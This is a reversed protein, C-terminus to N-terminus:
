IIPMAVTINTLNQVVKHSFNQLVSNEINQLRDAALLQCPVPNAHFATARRLLLLLLNLLFHWCRAKISNDRFGAAPSFQLSLMEWKLSFNHVGKPPIRLLANWPSAHITMNSTQYFYPIWLSNIGPIKRKWKFSAFFSWFEPWWRNQSVCMAM